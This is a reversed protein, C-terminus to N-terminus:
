NNTLANRYLLVMYRRAKRAADCCCWCSINSSYQVEDNMFITVTTHVTFLPPTYFIRWYSSVIGSVCMNSNFISLFNHIIINTIGPWYVHLAPWCTVEVLGIRIICRFIHCVSVPNYNYHSPEVGEGNGPGVAVSSNKNIWITKRTGTVV